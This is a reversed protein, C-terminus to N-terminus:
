LFFIEKKLALGEAQAERRRFVEKINRSRFKVTTVRQTKIMAGKSREGFIGRNFTHVNEELIRLHPFHIKIEEFLLYNLNYFHDFYVSM